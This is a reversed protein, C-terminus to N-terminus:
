HPEHGKTQRGGEVRIKGPDNSFAIREAKKMSQCLSCQCLILPARSLEWVGRWWQSQSGWFKSGLVSGRVGAPPFGAEVFDGWSHPM